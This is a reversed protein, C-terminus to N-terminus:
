DSGLAIAIPLAGAGLLLLAVLFARRERFITGALITCILGCVLVGAWCFVAVAADGLGSLITPDERAVEASHVWKAAGIVDLAYGAVLTWWLATRRTDM